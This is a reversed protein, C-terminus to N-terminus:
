FVSRIMDNSTAEELFAGKLDSQGQTLSLTRGVGQFAQLIQGGGVEGAAESAHEGEIEAAVSTGQSHGANETKKEWRLAKARATGEAQFM